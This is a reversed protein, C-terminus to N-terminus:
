EEPYSYTGRLPGRQKQENKEQKNEVTHTIRKFALDHKSLYKTKWINPPKGCVNRNSIELKIRNPDSIM